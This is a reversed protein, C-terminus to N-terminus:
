SRQALYSALLPRVPPSINEPLDDPAFFRLENAEDRDPQLTGAWDRSIYVASVNYVEDGNPYRYYLEPGSFVDLLRMSRVELGTEERVERRATEELSEGPEMMGGPIGWAGNDARRMLLIRGAENEIIVGAGPWILPRHGVLARLENIYDTM